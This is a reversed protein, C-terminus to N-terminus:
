FGHVLLNKEEIQHLEQVIRDSEDLYSDCIHCYECSNSCFQNPTAIFNRENKIDEMIKVLYYRAREIDEPKVDFSVKANTFLYYYSIVQPYRGLKENILITYLPLQPDKEIDDTLCMNNGTKYDVVELKNDTNIFAKDIKGCIIFDDNVKKKIMEEIILNKIGQEKPELYYRQLMKLGKFGYQNVEDKDKYGENIWNKRLLNYLIELTRYEKNQIKNFEALTIHMSNGFSLYKNNSVYNPEPKIRDIYKYKFRRKCANFLKISSSSIYIM